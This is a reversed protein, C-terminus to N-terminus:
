RCGEARDYRAQMALLTSAKLGTEAAWLSAAEHSIPITGALLDAVERRGLGLRESLHAISLGRPEVVEAKLWAGPHVAISPHLSVPM